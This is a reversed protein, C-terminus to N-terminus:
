FTQIDSDMMVFGNDSTTSFYNGDHQDAYLDWNPICTSAQLPSSCWTWVGEGGSADETMWGSPLDMSSSFDEEWFVNQAIGLQFAFALSLITFLKKTLQKEKM